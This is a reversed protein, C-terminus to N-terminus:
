VRRRVLVRNARIEVPLRRLPLPPPGAIVKGRSDFRGGHCPCQFQGPTDEWQVACGLHTCRSSFVVPEGDQLSAYVAETMRDTRWGQTREYHLALRQPRDTLVGLDVLELWNSERKSVVQLAAASIAALSSGLLGLITWVMRGM